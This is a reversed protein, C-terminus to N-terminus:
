VINLQATVHTDAGKESNQPQLIFCGRAKALTKALFKTVGEWIWHFVISQRM